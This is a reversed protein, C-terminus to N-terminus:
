KLSAVSSTKLDENLKVGHQRELTSILTEEEKNDDTSVINEYCITAVEFISSQGSIQTLSSKIQLEKELISVVEMLSLSDVGLDILSQHINIKNATTSLQSALIKQIEASLLMIAEEKNKTFLIDLLSKDSEKKVIHYKGQIYSYRIDNFGKLDSIKSVDLSAIALAKNSVLNDLITDVAYDVDLAMFGFKNEFLSILKDNNNLLGADKIPGLLLCSVKNDKGQYNYILKELYANAVVYNAQGENGIVTTVSSIFASYDVNLNNDIFGQMFNKAGIVKTNILKIFDKEHLDKVLADALAVAAHIFLSVKVKNDKLSKIFNNVSEKNVVDLSIYHLKLDKNLEKTLNDLTVKIEDNLPRRGILYFSSIGKQSLKKVLTLGLGGLGGTIICSGLNNYNIKDLKNNNITLNYDCCSELSSDLSDELSVVIKGIHSSGKMDSFAKWALDKSYVTKPLVYFDDAEFRELIENFLKLALPKKYVLLEDVDVGFYSINDKFVKLSLTNNEFFDRKGLEVFRGFPKLLKISAYAGHKYLSNLVIDVGLGNTDRMIEDAFNYSRSDYIHKVGMRKLLNRKKDTGATAYIELGLHQAIEIAALGVGGAGGHILISEGECALAKTVISYYATLFTVPITCADTFSLSEPLRLVSDSKTKVKSAFCQRAFAVVRDGVKVNKVKSGVKLVVGSCELGLTPGCFGKELAEVPLIGLAFMVDRYNLGVAKNLILVEDNLINDFSSKVFSLSQLNGQKIAKLYSYSISDLSDKNNDNLLDKNKFLEIYRKDNNLIVEDLSHNKDLLLEAKLAKISLSTVRELVIVKLNLNLENRITRLLVVLSSIVCKDLNASLVVKLLVDDFAAVKLLVQSIVYYLKSLDTDLLNDSEISAFNLILERKQMFQKKKHLSVFSDLTNNFSVVDFLSIEDSGVLEEQLSSADEKLGYDKFNVFDIVYYKKKSNEDQLLNFLDEKSITNKCNVDKFKTENFSVLENEKNDKNDEDLKNNNINNKKYLALSYNANELSSLLVLNDNAEYKLSSIAYSKFINFIADIFSRSLNNNDKLAVVVGNDKLSSLYQKDEILSNADLIIDYKDKADNLTIVKVQRLHSFESQVKEKQEESSVLIHYNIHYTAILDQMANLLLVSSYPELVSVCFVSSDKLGDKQSNKTILAVFLKQMLNTFSIADDNLAKFNDFLNDSGLLLVSDLSTDNILDDLGEGIRAIIEAKSFADASTAIITNYIAEIDLADSSFVTYCDDEDKSALSNAVLINILYSLLNEVKTSSPVVDFIEEVITSRDFVKIKKLIYACILASFFPELNEKDNKDLTNAKKKYNDFIAVANAENLSICDNNVLSAIELKTTEFTGKIIRNPLVYKLYRIGELSLLVEDKENIFVIDLLAYNEYAGKITAIARVDGTVKLDKYWRIKDISTPLLLNKDDKRSNVNTLYFAFLSQLAGDICFISLPITDFASINQLELYVKNQSCSIKKVVRFKDQYNIGLELAKDYLSAVSVDQRTESSGLDKFSSDKIVNGDFKIYRAKLKRDFSSAKNYTRSEIYLYSNDDISTKINEIDDTLEISKLIAFDDLAVVKQKEDLLLAAMLSQEIYAAAPYVVKNLVEHGVLYPFRTTDIENIFAHSGDKLKHGLLEYSTNKFIAHSEETEKLQCEEKNFPYLPLTISKDIFNKDFVKEINKLFPSSMLSYILNDLDYGNTKASLSSAKTIVNEHLNNALDKIYNVLISKAGVEFFIDHGDLIQKEISDKFKVECRTNLWWYSVDLKEGKKYHRDVCSYFDKTFALSKIAKLDDLLSEKISDMQSSHFAYHLNLLKVPVAYTQKVYSVFETLLDTEGSITFSDLTNTAAITLDKFKTSNLIDKLVDDNIKIVAMDGLNKVKAQNKSRSVIVASADELSLGGCYYVAAVEGVSHGCASDAEIGFHKLTDAITVELAFLIPQAIETEKIQWDSDEKLIYESVSWDQYNQLAKDVRDFYYKFVKSTKYLERGMAVFQSGNGSFVFSTKLNGKIKNQYFYNQSDRDEIYAKLNEILSVSDKAKVYLDCDFSSSTYATTAILNDLTKDNIIDIYDKALQKLSVDSNASLKLVRDILPDSNEKKHHAITNDYSELIIHGNTGGFGFSNVGVLAKGCTEITNTNKTVVELNLADFDINENFKKINITAPIRKTELVCIAKLIGAVGSATELHGLNSKISGILLKREKDKLKIGLANGISKTEIPDGVKTGTGHAEVYVLNDLNIDKYLSDLLAQQAKGNPLSIGPTRGDQNVSSKVITAYIYDGDEVAKEYPKLVFIAGGESRVYGNADNDFVKCRGDPSLMHAQSFGIFPIPSLLVNVGGALCMSDKHTDLYACAQNIAVISSSCATDITMSPGHLNYFHSLRNSIISLNTGTMGYSNISALDDAHSMAMDTSAAGVFVATNSNSLDKPNIKASVLADYSMELCLRQQVDMADAEAKSLNFFKYDFDKINDLVGASFTTAHGKKNYLEFLKTNFRKDDVRRILDKNNFLAEKFQAFSRINQPLKLGIGIIAVKTM